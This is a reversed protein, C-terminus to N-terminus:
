GRASSEPYKKESYDLWELFAKRKEEWIKDKEDRIKEYEDRLDSHIKWLRNLEIIYKDHDNLIDLVTRM